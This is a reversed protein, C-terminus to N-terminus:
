GKSIYKQGRIMILDEPLPLIGLFPTTKGYKSLNLNQIKKILNKEKASLFSLFEKYDMLLIKKRGSHRKLFFLQFIKELIIIERNKLEM